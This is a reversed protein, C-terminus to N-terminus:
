NCNRNFYLCQRNLFYMNISVHGFKQVIAAAFFFFSKCICRSLDIESCCVVAIHEILVNVSFFFYRFMVIGRYCVEISFMFATQVYEVIALNLKGETCQFLDLFFDRINNKWCLFSFCWKVIPILLLFFIHQFGTDSLIYLIHLLCYFSLSFM